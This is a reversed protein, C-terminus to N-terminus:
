WREFAYKYTGGIGTSTSTYYVNINGGSLTVSLTLGTTGSEAYYENSSLGVTGDTAIQITDTRVNTGRIITSHLFVSNYIAPMSFLLVPTPQNDLFTTTNLISLQKLGLYLINNTYDFSFNSSAGFSGAENLQINTDSGAPSTSGGGGMVTPINILVSTNAPNDSWSQIMYTATANSGTNTTTYQIIIDNGSLIANFTIGLTNTSSSRDSIAVNIGDTTVILVGTEQQGNRTLGYEIILNEFGPYSQIIFTGNTTNNTLTVGNLGAPLGPITGFSTTTYFMLGSAGTSTSTYRLTINGGSVVASFTVGPPAPTDSSINSIGVTTGNTTLILIGAEKAGSKIISYDIIINEDNSYSSTFVTGNTTNDAIVVNSFLSPSVVTDGWSLYAYTLTGPTTLITSTYSLVINSGSIAASFTVGNPLTLSTNTSIGVTTGDTTIIIQGAEKTGQMVLSFNVIINEDGTYPTSFVVATTMPLVAITTYLISSQTAATTSIIINNASQTVTVGAGAIIDVAGTDGNLSTVGTNTIVITQGIDSISIGAGGTVINIIGTEGNLSTVGGSGSGGGGLGRNTAYLSM